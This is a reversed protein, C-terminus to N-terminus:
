INTPPMFTFYVINIRKRKPLVFIYYCSFHTHVVNVIIQLDHLPSKCKGRIKMQIEELFNNTYPNYTYRRKTPVSLVNYKHCVVVQQQTTCQDQFKNKRKSLIKM